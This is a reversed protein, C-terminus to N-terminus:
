LPTIATEIIRGQVGQVFFRRKHIAGSVNIIPKAHTNEQATIRRDDPPPRAAM